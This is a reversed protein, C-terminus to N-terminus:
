RGSEHIVSAGSGYPPYNRYQPDVAARQDDFYPDEPMDAVAVAPENDLSSFTPCDCYGDCDCGSCKM